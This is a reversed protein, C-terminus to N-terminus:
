WWMTGFCIIAAPLGVYKYVPWRKHGYLRPISSIALFLGYIYKSIYISTWTYLLWMVPRLETNTDRKPLMFVVILLGLTLIASICYILRPLARKTKPISRYIYIDILIGLLLAIISMVLPLRM